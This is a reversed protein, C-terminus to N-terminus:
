LPPDSRLCLLNFHLIVLLHILFMKSLFLNIMFTADCIIGVNADYKPHAHHETAAFYAM